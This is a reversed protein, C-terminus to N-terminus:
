ECEGKKRKRSGSKTVLDGVGLRQAWVDLEKIETEIKDINFVLARVTKKDADTVEQEPEAPNPGIQMMLNEIGDEVKKLKTSIKIAADATPKTYPSGQAKAKLMNLKLLWNQIKSYESDPDAVLANLKDDAIEKPTKKRLRSPPCLRPILTPIRLAPRRLCRTLTAVLFKVLVLLISNRCRISIRLTRSVRM